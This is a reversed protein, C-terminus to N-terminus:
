LWYSTYLGDEPWTIGKWVTKGYTALVANSVEKVILASPNQPEVEFILRNNGTQTMKYTGLYTAQFSTGILPQHIASLVDLVPDNEM